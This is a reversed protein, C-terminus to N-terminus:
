PREKMAPKKNLAPTWFLLFRIHHSFSDLEYLLRLSVICRQLHRPLPTTTFRFFYPEGFQRDFCSTPIFNKIVALQFKIDKVTFNLLVHIKKVITSALLVNFRPKTKVCNFEKIKDSFFEMCSTFCSVNEACVILVCTYVFSFVYFTIQDLAPVNRCTSSLFKRNLQDKQKNM